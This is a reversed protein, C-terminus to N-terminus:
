IHTVQLWPWELTQGENQIGRLKQGVKRPVSLNQPMKDKNVANPLLYNLDSLLHLTYNIHIFNIRM